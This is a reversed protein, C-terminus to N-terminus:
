HRPFLSSAFFSFSISIPIDNKRDVNTDNRLFLFFFFFLFSFFLFSFLRSPFVKGRRGERDSGYTVVCLNCSRPLKEMGKEMWEKKKGEERYSSKGSKERNVIIEFNIRVNNDTGKEKGRYLLAYGFCVCGSDIWEARRSM